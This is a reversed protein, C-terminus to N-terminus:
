RIEYWDVVFVQNIDQVAGLTPTSKLDARFASGPRLGPFPPKVSPLVQETPGLTFTFHARVTAGPSLVAPFSSGYGLVSDVYVLAECPAKSCPDDPRQSKLTSDVRVLTGLIRCVQPPLGAQPIKLAPPKSEERRDERTSRCSAFMLASCLLIALVFRM